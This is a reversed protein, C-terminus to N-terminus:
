HESPHPRSPGRGTPKSSSFRGGQLVLSGVLVTAPIGLEQRAALATAAMRAQNEAAGQQPTGGRRQRITSRSGAPSRGLHGPLHDAVTAFCCEDDPKTRKRLRTM